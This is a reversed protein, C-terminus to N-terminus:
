LQGLSTVSVGLKRSMVGLLGNTDVSTVSSWTARSAEQGQFHFCCTGGFRGDVKLISCPTIDRFIPSKMVVPTPTECKIDWLKSSNWTLAIKHSTEFQFITTFVLPFLILIKTYFLFMFTIIEYALLVFLPYVWTGQNVYKEVFKLACHCPSCCFTILSRM